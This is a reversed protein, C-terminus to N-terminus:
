AAERKGAFVDEVAQRVNTADRDFAQLDPHDGNAANGLKETLATRATSIVTNLATRFEEATRSPHQLMEFYLGYLPSGASVHKTLAGDLAPLLGDIPSTDPRCPKM